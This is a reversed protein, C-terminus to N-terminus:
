FADVTLSDVLALYDKKRIEWTYRKMYEYAAAVQTDRMVKHEVLDTVADALAQADGSPFFRVVRDNFYYTDIKTRSAIVPIGQSMFEMIKTSYAENGFSDARKPVIGLDADAMIRPIENLSVSGCFKVAGNLGLSEALIRLDCEMQGSGYLHLEANPLRSKVRALADIAIDLGQHWQFSGPFLMVLKGDNRTRPHHYFLDSDVHNVYVSCKDKPVSRSTITDHWLHNSIIVHDSFAASAKEVRKLLRGYLGDGSAGFKNGFLEPVLDHIDLIIKAGTLKPYWAGFTLFDPINHVHILDYRVRLHRRALFFSSTLLFRLIRWAYQWKHRENKQRGQLQFIRVGNLDGSDPIGADSLALVDVTDGRKALAEAYRRVRGDSAYKTYALMCIRKRTNRASAPVTSSYYRAVESPTAAWFQGEYKQRVYRLLDKYRAAPYEDIAPAGEFSVYDPHVIVLAMGGRSAIWDLKQKWIRIDPEQLVIFLTGDQPLTYPLEVYGSGDPGPVWFPFITGVADPEPEFPDTDFSSADYEAELRHLWALRHQMSPSRFGTANWERLYNNIAVAKRAFAAKSSYLKGDHELGHVGIEFGAAQLGQRLEPSVPYKWEPVFNFSSRFGHERDLEALQQVRSLGRAGEVDHTLVFAFRKGAPWGPWGPPTAGAREDIPWSASHAHRRASALWRRLTLRLRLPLFPKLAYYTRNIIV